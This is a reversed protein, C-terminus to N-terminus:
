AGVKDKRQGAKAAQEVYDMIDNAVNQGTVKEIAFGPSANVELVLPGRESRMM